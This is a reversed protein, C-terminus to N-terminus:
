AGRRLSAGGGGGGGSPCGEAKGGKGKREGRKIAQLCRPRRARGGGGVGLVEKPGEVSRKSMRKGGAPPQEKKKKLDKKRQEEKQLYISGNKITM